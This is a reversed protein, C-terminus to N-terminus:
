HIHNASVCVVQKRQGKTRNQTTHTKTPILITQPMQYVKLLAQVFVALSETLENQDYTLILGMQDSRISFDWQLFTREKDKSQDPHNSYCERIIQYLESLYYENDETIAEAAIHSLGYDIHALANIAIDAQNHTCPVTLSNENAICNFMRLEKNSHMRPGVYIEAATNTATNEGRVNHKNM